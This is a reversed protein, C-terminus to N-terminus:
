TCPTSLKIPIWKSLTRVRNSVNLIILIILLANLEDTEKRLKRETIQALAQARAGARSASSQRRESLLRKHLGAVSRQLLKARSQLGVCPDVAQRAPGTPARIKDPKAAFEFGSKGASTAPIDASGGFLSSVAAIIDDTIKAAFPAIKPYIVDYGIRVGAGYGAGFGFGTPFSAAAAALAALALVM